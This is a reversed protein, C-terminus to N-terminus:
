WRKLISVQYWTIHISIYRCTCTLCNRFSYLTGYVHMCTYKSFPQSESFIFISVNAKKTTKKKPISNLVSDPLRSNHQKIWKWRKVTQTRFPLTTIAACGPTFNCIGSPTTSLFSTCRSITTASSSLNQNKGTNVSM